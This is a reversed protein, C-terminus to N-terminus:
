CARRTLRASSFTAPLHPPASATLRAAKAAQPALFYVFRFASPPPASAERARTRMCLMLRILAMGRALGKLLGIRM